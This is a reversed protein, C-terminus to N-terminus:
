LIGEKRLVHRVAEVTPLPKGNTFVQHTGKTTKAHSESGKVSIIGDEDQAFSWGTVRYIGGHNVDQEGLMATGEGGLVFELMRESSVALRDLVQLGIVGALNNTLLYQALQPFFSTHVQKWNDTSPGGRYEYAVFQNESSLVYIHGHIDDKDINASQTPKTWYGLSDTGLDVGLMIKDEDIHFHGHILHVGFVDQADYRTFLEALSQLQDATVEPQASDDKLNNYRFYPM